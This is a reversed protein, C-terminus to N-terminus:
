SSIKKRTWFCDNANKRSRSHALLAEVAKRIQGNGAQELAAQAASTSASTATSIAVPTSAPDEMERHRVEHLGAHLIGCSVRQACAQNNIFDNEPGQQQPQIWHANSSLHLDSSSVRRTAKGKRTSYGGQCKSGMDRHGQNLSVALSWMHGGGRCGSARGLCYAPAIMTVWEREGDRLSWQGVSALLWYRFLM